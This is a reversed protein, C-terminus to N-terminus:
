AKCIKSAFRRLTNGIAIPRIGGDKKKLACLNAGFFIPLLIEPIKGKFMLNLLDTLATLLNSANEGLQPSTLDKLYQPKMGDLGGSSGSPFSLIDKYIEEKTCEFFKSPNLLSEYDSKAIAFKPPPNNSKLSQLTSEDFSAFAEDSFLIRVAGSIDGDELKVIARKALLEGPHKSSKRVPKNASLPAFNVWDSVINKKVAATLSMKVPFSTSPVRFNKYCFLVLHEWNEISGQDLCKRIVTTLSSAAAIRAGKPIRRLLKCSLKYQCLSDFLNDDITQVTSVNNEQHMRTVHCKLGKRTFLKTCYPCIVKEELGDLTENINTTM